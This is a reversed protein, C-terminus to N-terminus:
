YQLLIDNNSRYISIYARDITVRTLPLVTAFHKSNAAQTLIIFHRFSLQIRLQIVNELKHM